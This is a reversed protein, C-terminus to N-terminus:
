YELQLNMPLIKFHMYRGDGLFLIINKARHERPRLKLAADLTDRAQADWYAPEKELEHLVVKLFCLYWFIFVHFQIFLTDHTHMNIEQVYKPIAYILSFAIKILLYIFLIFYWFM